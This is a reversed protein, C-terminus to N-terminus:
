ALRSSRVAAAVDSSERRLRTLESRLDAATQYRMSRDKELARTIVHELEPPVAPNVERIPVPDRNLIADSTAADTQGRFAQRGTTMEYLLLGLSFLDTRVDLLERRVQEPSLYNTTTEASNLLKVPGSSTIFVTAPKINGHVVGKRHVADLADAIRCGIDLVEELPLARDKLLVNLSDGQTAPM